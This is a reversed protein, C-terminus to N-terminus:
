YNSWMEPPMSMAWENMVGFTHDIVWQTGKGDYYAQDAIYALTIDVLVGFFGGSIEEVEQQTLEKM